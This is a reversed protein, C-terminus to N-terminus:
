SHSLKSFMESELRPHNDTVERIFIIKEINLNYDRRSAHSAFITESGDRAGLSTGVLSRNNFTVRITALNKGNIKFIQFQKKMPCSFKGYFGGPFYRRHQVLYCGIPIINVNM